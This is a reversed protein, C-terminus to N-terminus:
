SPDTNNAIVENIWNVYLPLETYVGPANPIACGIGWSVIGAQFWVNTTNPKMCVFPGGSDGACADFGDSGGACIMNDTLKYPVPTEARQVAAECSHWDAIDLQVQRAAPEYDLATDSSKGWGASICRTGVPILQGQKPLCIPRLYDSFTLPEDLKIIAIDNEVTYHNYGPYTFFKQGKRVQRYRSYTDKRTHGAQITWQLFPVGGGGICHAATLIFLENIVSGGCFFKQGSGGHLSVLWPWTGPRVEDGGVIRLANPYVAPRTGCIPDECMINVHENNSCSSTWNFYSQIKRPDQNNNRPQLVVAPRSSGAKFVTSHVIRYGLQNCVINSFTMNWGDSCVPLWQNTEPDRAEVIRQQAHTGLRVCESEEVAGVCDTVGDCVSNKNVCMRNGSCLHENAACTACHHEDMNDACDQYGDCVWLNSICTGNDCRFEDRRCAGKEPLEHAEDYGICINEDPSDPFKTCNLHPPWGLYFIHLYIECRSKFEQCLSRCPPIIHNPVHGTGSCKPIFAACVFLRAYKFCHTAFQIGKIITTLNAKVEKEGYSGVTNPFSTYNYGVDECLEEQVPICKGPEYLSPRCVTPNSSEPLRSCDVPFTINDPYAGVCRSRVEECYSRCPPIPRNLYCEPTYASCFFDKAYAHCPIDFFDKFHNYRSIAQSQTVDGFANPYMTSHYNTGNVCPHLRMPECSTAPIAPGETSLPVELYIKLSSPDIKFISGELGTHIISTVHDVTDRTIGLSTKFDLVFSIIVSGHRIQLIDTDNYVDRLDSDRFVGMMLYRFSGKLDLFADTRVDQYANRYKSFPGDVIRLSGKLKDSRYIVPSSTSRIPQSTKDEKLFHVLLGVVVAVIAVALIVFAIIWIHRRRSSKPSKFTIQEHPQPPRCHMYDKARAAQAKQDAASPPPTKNGRCGKGDNEEFLPNDYCAQLCLGMLKRLTFDDNRM